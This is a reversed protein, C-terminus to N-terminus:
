EGGDRPRLSVELEYGFRRLVARVGVQSGGMVLAGGFGAVMSYGLVEGRTEPDLGVTWGFALFLVGLLVGHILHAALTLWRVQERRQAVFAAAGAGGLGGAIAAVIYLFLTIEALYPRDAM